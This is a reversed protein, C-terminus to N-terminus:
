SPGDEGPVPREAAPGPPVGALRAALTEVQHRLASVEATLAQLAVDGPTAAAHGAESAAPSGASPKGNDLRFFSALSGALVGLV